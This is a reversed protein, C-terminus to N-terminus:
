ALAGEATSAVSSGRSSLHSRVKDLSLRKTCGAPPTSVEEHDDEGLLGGVAFGARGLHKVYVNLYKTGQETRGHAVKLAVPGFNAWKPKEEGGSNADFRVEDAQAKEAWAGTVNVTQFYLEECDGGLRSAVAQVTLLTEDIAAHRPIQLLVHVGTQMIDFREGHINQLHPDGTASAPATVVPTCTGCSAACHYEGCYQSALAGCMNSRDVCVNGEATLTPTSMSCVFWRPYGTNDCSESERGFDQSQRNRTLDNYSWSCGVESYTMFQKSVGTGPLGCWTPARNLWENYNWILHGTFAYTQDDLVDYTIAYNSMRPNGNADRGVTSFDYDPNARLWAAVDPRTAVHGGASACEARMGACDGFTGSWRPVSSMCVGSIDTYGSPCTSASSSNAALQMLNSDFVGENAKTAAGATLFVFALMAQVNM